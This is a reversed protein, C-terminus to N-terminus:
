DSLWPFFPVRHAVNQLGGSIITGWSPACAGKILICTYLKHSLLMSPPLNCTSYEFEDCLQLLRTPVATGEYLTVTALGADFFYLSLFCAASRTVISIPTTNHNGERLFSILPQTPCQLLRAYSTFMCKGRCTLYHGQVVSSIGIGPVVSQTLFGSGNNQLMLCAFCAMARALFCLHLYQGLHKLHITGLVQTWSVMYTEGSVITRSVKGLWACPDTPSDNFEEVFEGDQLTPLCTQWSPRSNPVPGNSM